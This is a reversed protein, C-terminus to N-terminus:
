KRDKGYGYGYGYGYKKGYGYRGYKGYKGYGYYYGNRRKNMDIGNILTCLGSLKGSQQLDNIFAYDSKHTYDARCVYVCIDAVRAILQTDTVIGIPATDLIVYDFREKLLTIAKDLSPRAVLETPNPPVTGGPLVFLNPSVDTPQCLSYLDTHEPDSLYRTIGNEKHSLRFVKNLGPKRIDLGVVVVKKGMFAFSAAINGATFSKGEGPTTSTFLIVKQGGRMLFQLNTRVNRFVEEMLDNRNERLVIPNGGEQVTEPIDGVIPVTTIKEVDARSEIKFRLLNLLYLFGVPLAVGVVFAVLLILMKRPSVPALGAQPEEIIRGNNATAALTIANEERKQLLLLYLNAKIEQQRTIGLLEREQQPADSIRSEYKKAERDLNAQTIHLGREVSNVSTIVNKRMAEISVDLNIVAPNTESSIRLLRKREILMQNYQEILTSLGQDSLGVNTPLVESANAPDNIYSKLFEILRIQTTNEAQKEKYSSNGELALKADTSLDTLGAQQKYAALEGETTGLERNIIAIREDIFEATKSAVENKDNNADDNYLGVLANLFDTGRQVDDDKYDLSVITTTKSTPTGSLNLRCSRAAADPSVIQAHITRPEDVRASLTDSNAMLSITGVPTIFLAPLTDFERSDTQEEKDVEFTAEVSVKGDPTLSLELDVPATLREAEEPTMYVLVPSTKYHDKAYSFFQPEHYSINLRLANVVKKVLTRSTLIEVENDFNNAMSLMGFDQLSMLANGATGSGKSKDDQKILVTTNINYVPAQYRLWVYTIVLVAVLSTLIVPWHIIYEFILAKIDISEENQSATSVPTTQESM